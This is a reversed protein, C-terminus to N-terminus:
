NQVGIPTPKLDRARRPPFNHNKLAWFNSLQEMTPAKVRDPLNVNLTLQQTELSFICSRVSESIIVHFM